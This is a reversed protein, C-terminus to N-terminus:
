VMTDSPDRNVGIQLHDSRNFYDEPAVLTSTCPATVAAGIMDPSDTACLVNPLKVTMACKRCRNDNLPTWTPFLKHGLDEARKAASIEMTKRKALIPAFEKRCEKPDIGHLLLKEADTFSKSIKYIRM